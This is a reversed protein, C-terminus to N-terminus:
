QQVRIRRILSSNEAQMRLLYIGESLHDVHLQVQQGGFNGYSQEMLKRGMLDHLSINFESPIFQSIVINLDGSTPNPYVKVYETWAPDDISTAISISQCSTDSGAGNTVTLCANYSGSTAYNHTPSPSSSSNGDGFDWSWTTPVGSSSDSFMVTTGTVQYGFLSVPPIVTVSVQQCFTDTGCPNNAILCATYTGTTDYTHIPHEMVSTDGDGFDWFWTVGSISTNTFAVSLGTAQGTYNANPAACTVSVNNCHTDAGCANNIILCVNFTGTNGFTHQPNQTTDTNGDGFDWTWNDPSGGSTDTFNVTLGTIATSYGSVPANGSIVYQVMDTCNTRWGFLTDTHTVTFPGGTAYAHSTDDMFVVPSGDGFNYEYSSVTAGFYAAQNYMRNELINSSADTFTVTGASVLCSPNFTFDATLETTVHPDIIADADYIYAPNAGLTVDYARLWVTGIYASSLWEQQGDPMSAQYDSVVLGVGYANNNDIVLVYPQSTTVPNTFTVHKELTTLAGTGFVTDFTISTSAIPSGVPLSDVGANYIEANVTANIGGVSDIKFAYFTIGRITLSQPTDYYQAVSRASGANNMNIVRLGTAKALTYEVTDASCTVTSLPTAGKGQTWTQKNQVQQRDDFVQVGVTQIQAYAAVAIVVLLSSLIIRRYM